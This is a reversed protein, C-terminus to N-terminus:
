TPNDVVVSRQALRNYCHSCVRRPVGVFESALFVISPTSFPSPQAGSEEFEVDATYDVETTGAAIRQSQM